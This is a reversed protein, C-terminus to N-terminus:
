AGTPPYEGYVLKAAEYAIAELPGARKPDYAFAVYLRVPFDDGEKTRPDAGRILNEVKWRWEVVPYERPDISVRRILGSASGQAVAKLVPVSGEMVIAYHTHRPIKEFSLPEWGSPVIQGPEARSFAGVPWVGHDAGQALVCVWGAMLTVLVRSQGRELM